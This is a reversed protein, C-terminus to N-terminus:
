TRQRFGIQKKPPPVIPEMLEQLAEFVVKFQGDYKKELQSVKGALDRTGVVWQRLRVFTRMIEVNVAVAQNSRLVSSLMAVGQETFAFPRYKVNRGQKLIVVQSRSGVIMNALREAEVWELQFVFDDPFRDHNRRVAQLLVRHEVGYLEALDGSLM